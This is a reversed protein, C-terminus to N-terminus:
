AYVDGSRVTKMQKPFWVSKTKDTLKQGIMAAFKDVSAQDNFHVVVSRFSRNDPQEFEPMGDWAGPDGHEKTRPATSAEPVAASEMVEAILADLDLGMEIADVESFGVLTFDFDQEALSALEGLVKEMDWASLEPLRNDAIVYAAKQLVSLGSLVICPVKELNLKKAARRRAEGAIVTDTEDILIPNTFGFEQISAVIQAVQAESHTRANREFPVLDSVKREVSLYFKIPKM